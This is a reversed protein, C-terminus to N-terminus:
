GRRNLVEEVHEVLGVKDGYEEKAWNVVEEKKWKKDVAIGVIKEEAPLGFNAHPYETYDIM